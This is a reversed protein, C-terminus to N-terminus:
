ADRAGPGNHSRAGPNLKCRASPRAKRKARTTMRASAGALDRGARQQRALTRREGLDLDVLVRRLAVFHQAQATAAAGHRLDEDTVPMDATEVVQVGEVPLALEIGQQFSRTGSVPASGARHRNGALPSGVRVFGNEPVIHRCERGDVVFSIGM